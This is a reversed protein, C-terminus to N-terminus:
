ARTRLLAGPLREPHQALQIVQEPPLQLIVKKSQSDILKAVTYGSQLDVTLKLAPATKKIAHRLQKLAAEFHQGQSHKDTAPAPLVSGTPPLNAGAGTAPPSPVSPAPSQSVAQTDPSISSNFNVQM